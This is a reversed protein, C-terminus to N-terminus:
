AEDIYGDAPERIATVHVGWDTGLRALANNWTASLAELDQTSQSELDPGQYRFGALFSGDKQLAIAMKGADTQWADVLFAINLLDPLGQAKDRYQKLSLM